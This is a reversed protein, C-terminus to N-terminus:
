GTLVDLVRDVLTSPVPMPWPADVRAVGASILLLARTRAAETDHGLDIFAQEMYRLLTADTAKVSAAASPNSGAWDRMAADVPFMQEDDSIEALRRLRERPALPLLADLVQTLQDAGYYGALEELYEAMGSFHHYFSGTTLGTEATLAQLKVAAVGGRRLLSQGAQLWRRRAGVTDTM